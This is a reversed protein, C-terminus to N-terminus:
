VLGSISDHDNTQQRGDLEGPHSQLVHLFRKMVLPKDFHSVAAARSNKSFSSLPGDPRSCAQIFGAIGNVDTPAFSAGCQFRNIQIAVDSADSCIGLIASGVAMISYMKSPMMCGETGPAMAVVGIDAAAQSLRYMEDSQPPLLLTGQLGAAMIRSRIAVMGPGEGIIVLSINTAHHRACAFAEILCGIDHSLGINGSYMVVVSDHLGHQLVFPNEHKAIPKLRSCDVWTPIVHARPADPYNRRMLTGMGDSIAITMSAHNLCTRNLKMWAPVLLWRLIRSRPRIIDPYMDWQYACLRQNKLICIVGALWLAIPPNTTVVILADRNTHLLPTIAHCIYAFWSVFRSVISGRNVGITRRVVVASHQAIRSTPRGIFEVAGGSEALAVVLDSVLIGPEQCIVVFSHRKAAAQMHSGITSPMIFARRGRHGQPMPQPQVLFM